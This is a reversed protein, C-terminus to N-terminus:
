VIHNFWSAFSFGRQHFGIRVGFLADEIGGV